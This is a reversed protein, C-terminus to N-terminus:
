NLRISKRTELFGIPSFVHVPIEDDSTYSCSDQAMSILLCAIYPDFDLKTMNESIGHAIKLAVSSLRRRYSYQNLKSWLWNKDVYALIPRSTTTSRCLYHPTTPSVSKGDLYLHPSSYGSSKLVSRYSHIASGFLQRSTEDRRRNRAIIIHTTYGAHPDETTLNPSNNSKDESINPLVDCDIDDLIEPKWLIPPIYSSPQALIRQRFSDPEIKHIRLTAVM